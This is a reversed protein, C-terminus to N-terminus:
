DADGDDSSTEKLISLSSLSEGHDL